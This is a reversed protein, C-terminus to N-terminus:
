KIFRSLLAVLGFIFGAVGIIIGIGEKSGAKKDEISAVRVKLESLQNNIAKNQLEVEARPMLNRQQDALTERFENVGEFRKEAAAEAKNVARDAAALAAQTAQIVNEFRQNYGKDNADILTQINKFQANFLDKLDVGDQKGFDTGNSM